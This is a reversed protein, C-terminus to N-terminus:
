ACLAEWGAFAAQQEMRLGRVQVRRGWSSEDRLINVDVQVLEWAHAEQGAPGRAPLWGLASAGGSSSSGSGAAPARERKRIVFTASEVMPKNATPHVRAVKRLVQFCM